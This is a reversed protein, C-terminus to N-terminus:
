SSLRAYFEHIGDLSGAPFASDNVTKNVQTLYYAIKYVLTEDNPTAISRMSLPIQVVCRGQVDTSARVVQTEVITYDSPVQITQKAVELIVWLETSINSFVKRHFHPVRAAPNDFATTSSLQFYQQQGNSYYFWEFNPYISYDQGQQSETTSGSTFDANDVQSTYGVPLFRKVRDDVYFSGICYGKDKNWVNMNYYVEASGDKPINLLVKLVPERFNYGAAYADKILTNEIVAGTKDKITLWVQGQGQPQYDMYLLFKGYARYPKFTVTQEFYSWWDVSFQSFSTDGSEGDWGYVRNQDQIPTDITANMLLHVGFTTALLYQPHPNLANQHAVLLSVLYDVANEVNIDILSNVLSKTAYQPHPDVGDLHQNMLAVAIPTNPDVSIVLNSLNLNSLLMGFTVVSVINAVLRILPTNTTTAAIAFLVGQDTILGIEYGDATQTPEINAIFRLTHSVPEVSGGNLPYREIESVLASNTLTMANSSDYKGSGVAIHTLSVNLGLSAANLAANRGASTLYFQIAM